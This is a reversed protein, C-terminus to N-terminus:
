LGFGYGTCQPQFSPDDRGLANMVDELAPTDFNLGVHGTPDAPCQSQILINQVDPGSLFANTWPTVVEDHTTEIVVYRPGRVTDGHAFLQTEFWSGSLQEALSPAGIAHFILDTISLLNVKALAPFLGDFTTGHNSPALGILMHVFRAGGLFEIYYNPMMGGQSHGVIDVKRAHTASRVSSVFSALQEASAPIDGLGDFRDGVSLATQGYNLAFVCYGANALMPSLEPWDFGMDFATEHVLIVPYPHAASPRCSWDNAGAVADPSSVLNSLATRINGIPITPRPHGGPGRPFRGGPGTPFRGGPGTPFQGGPGTPGVNGWPGTTGLSGAPGTLGFSAAPGSPGTPGTLGFSGAPGTPGSPGSPGTPGTLGFNGGPGTQAGAGAAAVLGAVLLLALWVWSAGLRRGGRTRAVDRRPREGLM